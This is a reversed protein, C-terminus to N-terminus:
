SSTDNANDLSKLKREIEDQVKDINLSGDIPLLKGQADYYKKLPRTQEDYVEIRHRVTEEKDDSRQILEGGCSECRGDEPPPDYILNYVRGCKVCVRRNTLREIIRKKSVELSIVATLSRHLKRLIQDLEQAQSITRPFGDLIFGKKTDPQKLREEILGIVIDDPVLEGADMYKKAKLGLPTGSAVAERLIDGTSIKPIDYKESLITAQTGKGSGPYGIFILEM